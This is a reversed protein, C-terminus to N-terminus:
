GDTLLKIALIKYVMRGKVNIRLETYILFHLFVDEGVTYSEGIDQFIYFNM